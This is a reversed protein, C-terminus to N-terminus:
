YFHDQEGTTIRGQLRHAATALARDPDGRQVIRPPAVFSEHKMAEEISLIAPLTQYIVKAKAAAARAIDVTEAVVAFIPHGDFSVSERAFVPEDGARICSVDDVGPIDDRTLVAAVGPERGVESLDLEIIRAHAHESQAIYIHLTGVPEPIDDIYLAEGCIQKQASDHALAAHVTTARLADVQMPRRASCFRRITGTRPRSTIAACCTPPSK